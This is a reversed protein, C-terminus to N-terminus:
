RSGDSSTQMRFVEASSTSTRSPRRSSAATTTEYRKPRIMANQTRITVNRLRIPVKEARIPVNRACFPINSLDRPERIISVSLFRRTQPAPDRFRNQGIKKEFAGWRTAFRNLNQALLHTLQHSSFRSIMGKSVTGISRFRNGHVVLMFGHVTFAKHFFCDM